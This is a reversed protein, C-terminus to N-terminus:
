DMLGKSSDLTRDLNDCESKKEFIQNEDEEVIQSFKSSKSHSHQLGKIEDESFQDNNVNIFKMKGSSLSLNIKELFSNQRNMLIDIKIQKKVARYRLYQFLFGAIFLIITSLCGWYFCSDISGWQNDELLFIYLFLSSLRMTLFITLLWLM